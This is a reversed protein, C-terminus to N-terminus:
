GCRRTRGPAARPSAARRARSAGGAPRRRRARGRVAEEAARLSREADDGLGPHAELAAGREPGAGRHVERAELVGRLGGSEHGLGAQVRAVAPQEVVVLREEGAAAVARARDEHEAELRGVVLELGPEGARELDAALVTPLRLGLLAAGVRGRRPARGEQAPRVDAVRHRPEAEDVLRELGRDRPIAERLEVVADARRDAVRHVALAAAAGEGAAERVDVRVPRRGVVGDVRRAPGAGLELLPVGILAAAESAIRASPPVIVWWWETPRSWAGQYRRSTGPRNRSPSPAALSASSGAPIMFGPTRSSGRPQARQRRPERDTRPGPSSGPM